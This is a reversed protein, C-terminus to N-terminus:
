RNEEAKKKTRKCFLKLIQVEDKTFGKELEGGLIVGLREELHNRLDQELLDYIEGKKKILRSQLVSNIANAKELRYKAAGNSNSKEKGSVSDKQSTRTSVTEGNLTDDGSSDGSDSSSRETPLLGFDTLKKRAFGNKVAVEDFLKRAHRFQKETLPENNKVCREWHKKVDSDYMMIHQAGNQNEMETLETIEDRELVSERDYVQPWVLEGHISRDFVIDLGSCRVYLEMIDEFYSPGIYGDEKYKKDPASFHIVEFGKSKYLNAVSTKGTRDLGELIIWSM